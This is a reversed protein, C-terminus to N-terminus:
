CLNTKVITMIKEIDKKELGVYLPLCLISSAIERSLLCTDADVYPLTDLSPYFYRRANIHNKELAKKVKLLQEENKFIVPYYCYNWETRDRIKLLQLNSKDFAKNYIDVVAKREKLITKFYPFVALGMAAQLESMKANIGVGHFAEPGDHGFNHHNFLKEHVVKNNAFMAGGEGTHFLKTAHFSCTSVDGYSFISKKKYTVGFCHAADYIV